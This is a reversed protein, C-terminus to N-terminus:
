DKLKGKFIVEELLVVVSVTILYMLANWINVFHIFYSQRFNSM